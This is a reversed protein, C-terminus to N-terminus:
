FIQYLGHADIYAVVADPTQYRIPRGQAIRQRLDSSSIDLRPGELMTLREGLGPLNRDLAATDLAFGPRGVAVIRALRIIDRAARWRHLEVAADFGLIFHLDDIGADRLAMLTDITYSPGQRAIEIPSVEFAPNGECALGAMELRQEPTAVHEGHKLPQRAAPVFLVRDFGLGARAEEAIALHGYHIPDFTGGLIAIKVTMGRNYCAGYWGLIL